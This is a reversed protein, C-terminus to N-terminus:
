KGGDLPIEDPMLYQRFKFGDIRTKFRGYLIGQFPQAAGLPKKIEPQIGVASGEM